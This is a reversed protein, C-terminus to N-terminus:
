HSLTASMGDAIRSSASTVVVEGPELGGLVEYRDGYLAGLEIARYEVRADTYVYVFRQGSGVLHRVAVDPVLITEASGLDLSVRAYMGPRLIQDRNPLEVEVPVTHTRTDITPYVNAVMGDFSKELADIEVSTKTGRKLRSYYAESVNVVAKVPTIQEIVVVPLQPSTMDGVDYNKATVVGGIPSRLITNSQLNNYVHQAIRMASQAQEWQVKSLGGIQYLESAREYGLRADDLQIKAQSLQADDLRAIVQGQAVRDGVKVSLFTLRGGAQAAINNSAKASLTTTYVETLRVTDRVVTAVEVQLVEQAKSETTGSAQSDSGSGCSTLLAVVAGLSLLPTMYSKIKTTM